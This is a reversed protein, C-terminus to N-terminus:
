LSRLAEAPRANLAPLAGILGFLLTGIGGGAITLAILGWGPSWALEFIQTVVVWGAVGGILLAIASLIAALLAYEAAQAKLVQGRTAGVMKLIVADYSRTRRSAAIAGVLVAIGALVAVAAAIGVATGLQGLLAGVQTIV